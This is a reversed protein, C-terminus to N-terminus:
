ASIGLFNSLIRAGPVASREPHFQTACFNDRAAVSVFSGGYDTTAAADVSASVAFGHVFYFYQGAVGELLPLESLPSVTNWGMHPIPLGAAELKQVQGPFVGLCDVGGEQSHEFLLQMGLCIGLVPQTLAPILGDLEFQKLRTMADAAAGVGPLIVRDANRIIRHDRTLEGRQGLRQLAFMVSGINAGGSDVVAIKV